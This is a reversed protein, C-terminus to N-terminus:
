DSVLQRACYDVLSLLADDGNSGGGCGSSGELLEAPIGKYFILNLLSVITTEAHLIFATRLANGNAALRYALGEFCKGGASAVNEGEGGDVDNM